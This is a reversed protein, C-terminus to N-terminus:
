TSQDVPAKKLSAIFFGSFQFRSPLFYLKGRKAEEILGLNQLKQITEPALDVTLDQLAFGPHKSLFADIVEDNEEPEISCTSYVLRGGPKLMNAANDLLKKQIEALDTIDSMQLKLRIDGRKNIVGTGSCPADVLVRDAPPVDIPRTCDAKEVMVNTLGLRQRNDRILSLRNEQKDYAVVKGKGDMMEAMHMTKGGPAACLDYVLDGSKPAVIESVFAAAEDQISFIGDSFGPIKAVSGSVTSRDIILCDRSLQSLETKIGKEALIKAFDPAEIATRNVRITLRAPQSSAELLKRTEQPGLRDHWRSVLWPPMSYEMALDAPSNSKTIEAQQGDKQRLYNRLLGNVFAAQGKHGTIKALEVAIDVAARSEVQMEDIQYIATRLNCLLPIPMKKIPHRSGKEIIADLTSQKRLVGQVIATVLARDKENLKRSHEDLSEKLIVNTYAGKREIKILIELALRRSALGKKTSM